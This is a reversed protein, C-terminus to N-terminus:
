TFRNELAYLEAMEVAGRVEREYITRREDALDLDDLFAWLEGEASALRVARRCMGLLQAESAFAGPQLELLAMLRELGPAEAVLDSLEALAALGFRLCGRFGERFFLSFYRFLSEFPLCHVGLGSIWKKFLDLPVGDSRLRKCAPAAAPDSAALAFLLHADVKARSAAAEFHGCLHEESRAVLRMLLLAEAPQLFLLLFSAIFSMNQQYDGLEHQLLATVAILTARNESSAFTREADAVLIRDVNEIGTARSAAVEEAALQLQEPQTGSNSASLWKQAKKLLKPASLPTIFGYNKKLIVSDKESEFFSKETIM